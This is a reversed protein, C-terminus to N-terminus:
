EAKLLADYKEYLAKYKTNEDDRLRFAVSKILDMVDRNEPKLAIAKELVEIAAKLDLIYKAEVERYLERNSYDIASMENVKEDSEAVHVLANNYYADFYDPAMENVRQYAAHAEAYNGMNQYAVGEIFVIIHNDPDADQATKILSIVKVHDKKVTLYYNILQNIVKQNSPFSELGKLYYKEAEENNGLQQSSYALYYYVDGDQLYNDAELEQFYGLSNAFDDSQVYSVGAFYKYMNADAMAISPKSGIKSAIGFFKAAGAFDNLTYKSNARSILSSALQIYGETMKKEYAPDIEL